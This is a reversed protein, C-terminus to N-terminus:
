KVKLFFGNTVEKEIATDESFIRTIGAKCYYIKKIPEGIKYLYTGKAIEIEDWLDPHKKVLENVLEKVIKKSEELINLDIM